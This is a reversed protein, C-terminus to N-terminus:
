VKVQILSKWEGCWQDSQVVPWGSDFRQMLSTQQTFKDQAPILTITLQAPYRRCVGQPGKKDPIFYKCENCKNHGNEIDM